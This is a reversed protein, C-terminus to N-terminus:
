HTPEAILLKWSRPRWAISCAMRQVSSVSIGVAKAMAADTWHSAPPPPGALTLAVVREAVEPGQRFVRPGRRTAGFGWVGKQGFRKQWLWIVTKPRAPPGCSKRLAMVMPACDESALRAKQPGNRNAVVPELENRDATSLRISTREHM